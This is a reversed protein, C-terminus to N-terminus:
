VGSLRLTLASLLAPVFGLLLLLRHSLHRAVLVSAVAACVVGASPTWSEFFLSTVGCLPVLLAPLYVSPKVHGCRLGSALWGGALPVALLSLTEPLPLMSSPVLIAGLLTCFAATTLPRSVNGLVLSSLAYVAFAGHWTDWSDAGVSSTM